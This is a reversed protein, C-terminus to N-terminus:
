KLTSGFSYVGSVAECILYDNAPGIVRLGTVQEVPKGGESVASNPTRPIFVKATTNAPIRVNWTLNGGARQWESSIEGHM